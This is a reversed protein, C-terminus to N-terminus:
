AGLVVDAIESGGNFHELLVFHESEKVFFSARAKGDSEEHSRGVLFLGGERMGDRISRCAESLLDRGFYGLNLINMARVLHVPPTIRDFVSQKKFILNGAERAKSLCALDLLPIREISGTIDTWHWPAYESLDGAHARVLAVSKPALRRQLAYLLGRNVLDWKSEPSSLVFGLGIFQLPCVNADLVTTWPSGRLNVVFVHTFHDSGTLSFAIGSATMADYLECTTIGSSCAIDHVSTPEPGHDLSGVIQCLRQDLEPFRQRATQKYTGGMFVKNYLGLIGSEKANTQFAQLVIPLAVKKERGLLRKTGESM